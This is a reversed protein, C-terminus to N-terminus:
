QPLDWTWTGNGVEEVPEFSSGDWGLRLNELPEERLRVHSFSAPIGPSILDTM